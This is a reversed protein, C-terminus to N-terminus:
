GRNASGPRVADWASVMDDNRAGVGGRNQSGPSIRM